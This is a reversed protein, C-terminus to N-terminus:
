AAQELLRRAPQWDAWVPSLDRSLAPMEGLDFRGEGPAHFDSGRSARLGQERALTAFRSADHPAHSGCVVEVGVGGGDRFARLLEALALRDLEYRGPHALVAEGGAAQIWDMAETLRAWQHPVFGPKGQVLYRRFVEGLDRCHGRDVLHRAFHTRSVLAADAAHALAGEWAGQVGVRELDRAMQRAREIRGERVGQLGAALVRSGPDIGLGLMHVTQGAWTVSIEVGPVFALGLSRAEAAAAALGGTADHDTLALIQVGRAHARRVVEAPPLVGDSVTSHCHLDVNLEHPTM